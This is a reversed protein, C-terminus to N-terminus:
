ISKRRFRCGTTHRPISDVEQSRRDEGCRLMRELVQKQREPLWRRLPTRRVPLPNCQSDWGSHNAEWDNM